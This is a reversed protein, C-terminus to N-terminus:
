VQRHVRDGREANRVTVTEPKGDPVIATLVWPGGTRLWELFQITEDSVAVGPGAQEPGPVQSDKANPGTANRAGVSAAGPGDEKKPEM